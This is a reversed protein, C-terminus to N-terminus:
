CALCVGREIDLNATRENTISPVALRIFDVCQGYLEIDGSVALREARLSIEKNSETKIRFLADGNGDFLVPIVLSECAQQRISPNALCESQGFVELNNSEQGFFLFNTMSLINETDIDIGLGICDADKGRIAFDKILSIEALMDPDPSPFDHLPSGHELGIGIPSTEPCFPRDFPNFSVFSVENFGIETLHNTFDDSQSVSIIGVDGDFFEFSEVRLPLPEVSGYHSDREIPEFADEFLPAEIIINMQVDNIAPVCRFPTGVATSNPLPMTGVIGHEPALFATLGDIAISLSRQSDSDFGQQLPIFMTRVLSTRELKGAPSDGYDSEQMWIGNNIRAKYAMIM